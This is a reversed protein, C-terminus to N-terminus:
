NRKPQRIDIIIVTRGRIMALLFHASINKNYVNNVNVYIIYYIFNICECCLDVSLYKVRTKDFFRPSIIPNGSSVIATDILYLRSTIISLLFADFYFISPNIVPNNYSFLCVKSAVVAFHQWLALAKQRPAM